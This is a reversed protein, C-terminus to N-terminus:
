INVRCRGTDPGPHPIKKGEERTGSQAILRPFRDFLQTEEPSPADEFFALLDRAHWCSPKNLAHTLNRPHPQNTNFRLFNQGTQAPCRGHALTVQPDDVWFSWFCFLKWRLMQYIRPNPTMRDMTCIRRKNNTYTCVSLFQALTFDNWWSSVFSANLGEMCEQWIM